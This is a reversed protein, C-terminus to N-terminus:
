EADEPVELLEFSNGDPDAITVARSDGYTEIEDLQEGGCELLRVLTADFDSTIVDFRVMPRTGVLPMEEEAWPEAGGFLRIASGGEPFELLAFASAQTVEKEVIRLGLGDVWFRLALNFDHVLVEIDGIALM